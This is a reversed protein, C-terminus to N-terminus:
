KKRFQEFFEYINGEDHNSRLMYATKFYLKLMDEWDAERDDAHCDRYEFRSPYLLKFERELVMQIDSPTKVGELAEVAKKASYKVKSLTYGCYNDASDGALMQYALFKLGSGKYTGGSSKYKVWEIEGILPVLFEKPNDLTWDYVRVGNAQYTDKDNSIIIPINGKELEEYARISVKDDTEIQSVVEAGYKNKVFKRAEELHIPRIMDLRQGKYLDPLPLRHRFTEGAGLYMEADDVFLEGLCKDVQRKITAMVMAPDNPTQVDYIIYDDPSYPYKKDKLYKKFETRNKFSKEKGSKLHCATISREEGAAACRYTLIDTDFLAIRKGTM